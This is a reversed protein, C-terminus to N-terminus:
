FNSQLLHGESKQNCQGRGRFDFIPSCHDSFVCCFNLNLKLTARYPFDMQQGRSRGDRTRFETRSYVSSICLNKATQIEGNQHKINLLMITEFGTSDVSFLCTEM